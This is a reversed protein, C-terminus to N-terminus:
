GATAAKSNEREVALAGMELAKENLSLLGRKDPALVKKLSEIISLPRVLPVAKLLAGLMIMNAVRPEDLSNALENAPIYHINIDARKVPRNVMDSNVLLTGNRKLLGEFKELSPGNMVVLIDPENVLPSHIPDSSITIACNATGGRMEAGYSPLYAVERNELMGAYVLLHGMSIVGQGGFGSLILQRFM